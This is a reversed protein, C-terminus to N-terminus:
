RSLLVGHVGGFQEGVRDFPDSVADVLHDRVEVGLLEGGPHRRVRVRDTPQQPMQGAHLVGVHRLEEVGSLWVEVSPPGGLEPEVRIRRVRAVPVARRLDCPHPDFTRLPQDGVVVRDRLVLRARRM